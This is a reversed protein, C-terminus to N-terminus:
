REYGVGVIEVPKAADIAAALSFLSFGLAFVCAILTWSARAALHDQCRHCRCGKIM